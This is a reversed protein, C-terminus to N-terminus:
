VMVVPVLHPKDGLSKVQPAVVQRQRSPEEPFAEWFVKGPSVESPVSCSRRAQRAVNGSRDVRLTGAGRESPVPRHRTSEM